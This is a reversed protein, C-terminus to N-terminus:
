SQDAALEALEAKSRLGRWLARLGNVSNAGGLEVAFETRQAPLKASRSGLVRRGGRHANMSAPVAQDPRRASM